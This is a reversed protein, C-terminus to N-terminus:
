PLVNILSKGISCTLCKKESCHMMKLQILAQSDVASQVKVGVERWRKLLHNDEAPLQKLFSLARESVELDGIYKGWTYIFPICTNILINNISDTGLKKNKYSSSNNFHYHTNWYESSQVKFVSIINDLSKASTIEGFIIPHRFMLASLQSIRLAPFNVPRLRLLKWTSFSNSRLSYKNSLHRYVDQLQIPYEENFTDNLMGAQGFLLAEIDTICDREKRIIRLPLSRALMEFPLANLQFGFNRSLHQYFCEEWDGKNGNLAILIQKQRHELREYIMRDITTSWTSDDTEMIRHQCSIWGRTGILKLYNDWLWSPFKNKIEIAPISTGNMRMTASDNEYVVHLICSDYSDDNHHNHRKWDSAHIHIEVNGAWLTGDIRLRANFFDPGAGSNYQGPTVVEIELGNDTRLNKFNILRYQWLYHLFAETVESIKRM